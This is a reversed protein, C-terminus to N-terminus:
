EVKQFVFWNNLFSLTQLEKNELLTHARGFRSFVSEGNKIYKDYIDGFTGKGLTNIVNFPTKNIEPSVLIFGSEEMLNKFMSFNVLYEPLEQGITEMYVKIKHGLYKDAVEGTEETEDYKFRNHIEGYDRTLSYVRNGMDDIYEVNGANEELLEYVREGDYCTGFFYGGDKLNESVNTIYSMLTDLDKFYYHISFQSGVLDFGGLAKKQLNHKIEAYEEPIDGLNRGYLIDLIHKSYIMEPLSQDVGDISLSSGDKINESTDSMAFVIDKKFGKQNYQKSNYLRKSAERIDRSIDLGLLFDIHSDESLWKSLDGGRGCSTDLMSVNKYTKLYVSNSIGVVLAYKVFNHFDLLPKSTSNERSVGMYYVNEHLLDGREGIYEEVKPRIKDLSLSGNIMDLTVPNCITDWVSNAIKYYQPVQKDSRKRLPVWKCNNENDPEYRFEIIDGDRIELNDRESYARGKKLEINTVYIDVLDADTDTGEKLTSPNFYVERQSAGRKEGRLTKLYFQVSDDEGENYGVKMLLQKYKKIEKTAEDVYYVVKDKRDVASDQRVEVRFDITNEEVPKWKFNHAWTGAINTLKEGPSDAKVSLNNPLFILGDINYDYQRKLINNSHRLITAGIKSTGHYYTKRILKISNETSISDGTYEGEFEQLYEMRSGGGADSLFPMNFVPEPTNPYEYVDFYLFLRIDEGKVNKTVYEGDVVAGKLKKFTIDCPVINMYTNMNYRSVGTKNLLYTVGKPDVYLLFREGDAKETVSYNQLITPEKKDSLNELTLTVPQPTTLITRHEPQQEETLDRYSGIIDDKNKQSLLIHSKNVVQLVDFLHINLIELILLILEKEQGTTIKNHIIRRSHGSNTEYKLSHLESFVVKELNSEIKYLYNFTRLELIDKIDIEEKAVIKNAYINIFPIRRSQESQSGIYEIEIEYNEPNLLVNSERFTKTLIYQGNKEKMSDKVITLDIRFLNDRTVFSFRKKYRFMKLKEKWNEKFNDVNYANSEVERKLNIKYNYEENLVSNFFGREGDKGKKFYNSKQIYLVNKAISESSIGHKEALDIDDTECYKKIAHVGTITARTNSLISKDSQTKFLTRIDLMEPINLQLYKKSKFLDILKIFTDRSLSQRTNVIVELEAQDTHISEKIRDYIERTDPILNIM